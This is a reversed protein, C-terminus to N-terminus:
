GCGTPLSLLTKKRGKEWEALVAEKAELQYPRLTVM